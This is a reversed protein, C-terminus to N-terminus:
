CTAKYYWLFLVNLKYVKGIPWNWMIHWHVKRVPKDKHHMVQFVMSSDWINMANIVTFVWLGCVKRKPFYICSRDNLHVYDLRVYNNSTNCKIREAVHVLGNMNHKHKHMSQLIHAEIINESSAFVRACVPFASINGFSSHCQIFNALMYPWSKPICSTQLTKIKRTDHTTNYKQICSNCQPLAGYILIRAFLLYEVTVQM